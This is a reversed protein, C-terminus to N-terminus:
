TMSERPFMAFVNKECACKLGGKLGDGNVKM